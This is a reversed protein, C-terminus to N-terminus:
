FLAQKMIFFLNGGMTMFVPIIYKPFCKLFHKRMIMIFISFNIEFLVQNILFITEGLPKNSLNQFSTFQKKLIDDSVVVRAFCMPKQDSTILVVRVWGISRQHNKELFNQEDTYIPATGQFFIKVNLNPYVKKLTPTFAKVDILWYLLVNDSIITKLTEATHTIKILQKNM